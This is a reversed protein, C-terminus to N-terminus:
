FDTLTPRYLNVPTIRKEWFARPYRNDYPFLSEVVISVELIRVEMLDSTPNGLEDLISITFETVGAPSDITNGGNVVRFLIVDNPNLTHAALSPESTYYRVTDVAGDEDIDGLFTIDTTDFNTIALAPLGLGSGIRRFDHDIIEMLSATTEQTLLEFRKEYSFDIVGGYFAMLGLLFIGGIVISGILQLHSDM